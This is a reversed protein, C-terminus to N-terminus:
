KVEIPIETTDGINGDTPISVTLVGDRLVAEIGTRKARPPLAITRLMPGKRREELRMVATQGRAASRECRIHLVDGVICLSVQERTLGPLDAIIRVEREQEIVDVCPSITGAPMGREKQSAEAPRAKQELLTKFQRFNTEAQGMPDVEPALEYHGPKIPRGTLAQYVSSVEAIATEVDLM